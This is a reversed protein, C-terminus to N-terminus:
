FLEDSQTNREPQWNDARQASRQAITALWILLSPMLLINSLVMGSVSDTLAAVSLWIGGVVACTGALRTLRSYCFRTAWVALATSITYLGNGLYGTSITALRHLYLLDDVTTDLKSDPARLISRAMEPIIKMEIVEAFLDAAVAGVCILVAFNLLKTQTRIDGAHARALCYFFCLISLAACNWTIWASVWLPQNNALFELRQGLNPATDLGLRLILAMALGAILHIVLALIAAFRLRLWLLRETGQGEAVPQEIM